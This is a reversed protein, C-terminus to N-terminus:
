LIRSGDLKELLFQFYEKKSKGMFQVFDIETFINSKDNNCYYCALKCNKSSYANNDSDCREVELQFGRMGVRGPGVRRTKLIGAQILRQIDSIKTKCYCCRGEQEVYQSAWWLTFENLSTFHNLPRYKQSNLSHYKKKAIGAVAEASIDKIQSLIREINQLLGM